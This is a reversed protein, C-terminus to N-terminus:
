NGLNLYCLNEYQKYPFIVLIYIAALKKNVDFNRNVNRRRYLFM